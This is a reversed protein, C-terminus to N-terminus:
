VYIDPEGPIRVSFSEYQSSDDFISLSHGSAFFLTFSHPADITFRSVTDGIIVHLCYSERDVHEQASDLLRNDPARLEWGGEV